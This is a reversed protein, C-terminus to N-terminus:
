GAPGPDGTTGIRRNGGCRGTCPEVEGITLTVHEGQQDLAVAVPLDGPSQEDTVTRDGNM